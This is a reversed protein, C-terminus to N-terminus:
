IKCRVGEAKQYNHIILEILAHSCGYVKAIERMSMTDYMSMVDEQNIDYKKKFRTEEGIGHVKMHEGMSVIELNEIRNDHINGNKHHVHESSKLKRGLFKEMLHRHLYISKKNVWVTKYWKM